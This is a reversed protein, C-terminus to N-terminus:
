VVEDRMGSERPCLYEDIRDSNSNMFTLANVFSQSHRVKVYKVPNPQPFTVTKTLSYDFSAKPNEFVPSTLGNSLVCVISAIASFNASTKFQIAKLSVDPSMLTLDKLSPWSFTIDSDFAQSGWM